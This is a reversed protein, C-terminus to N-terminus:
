RYLKIRHTMTIGHSKWVTSVAKLGSNVEFRAEGGCSPILGFTSPSIRALFLIKLFLFSRINRVKDWLSYLRGEAIHTKYPTVSSLFSRV